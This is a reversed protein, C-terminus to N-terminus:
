HKPHLFKPNSTGLPSSGPVYMTRTSMPSLAHGSLTLAQCHAFSVTRYAGIM